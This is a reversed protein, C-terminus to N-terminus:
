RKRLKKIGFYLLIVALVCVLALDYWDGYDSVKEWNEGLVKGGYILVVTWPLSGALSYLFFRKFDMRAIGLPLSIFTRVVPMFRAWFAAKDGYREVWADARAMNKENIMFPRGYKLIFDRGKYRGVAYAAVSGIMGGLVGAFVAELFSIQGQSVLYGAFPLVLESPVPMCASELAM